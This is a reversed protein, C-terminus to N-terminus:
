AEPSQVETEEEAPIVEADDSEASEEISLKAEVVAEEVTEEEAVAEEAVAEEATEEEATEEEATEEEATEEEATEEVATETTASEAEAEMSFLPGAGSGIGGLLPERVASQEPSAGTESSTIASSASPIIRCALISLPSDCFTYTFIGIVNVEPLLVLGTTSASASRDTFNFIVAMKVFSCLM